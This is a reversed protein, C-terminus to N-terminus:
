KQFFTIATDGFIREKFPPWTTLGALSHFSSHELVLIGGSAVSEATRITGVLEELRGDQYPPDAFVLDFPTDPAIKTVITYANSRVVNCREQAGVLELNKKILMIARHSIEVYTVHHARRSLAEIGLAGTGAFLDMVEAGVVRDALVSFIFGKIKDSTPRLWNGNPGFLRRGKFEGTIVRM